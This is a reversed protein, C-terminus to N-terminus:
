SWPVAKWCENNGLLSKLSKRTSKPVSLGQEHACRTLFAATEKALWTTIDMAETELERFVSLGLDDKVPDIVEGVTVVSQFRRFKAADSATVLGSNHSLTHRIQFIVQLARVRIKMSSNPQKPIYRRKGILMYAANDIEDLDHFLRQEFVLEPICKSDTISWLLRPDVSINKMEGPQVFGQLIKGLKVFTRKFFTEFANIAELLVLQEAYWRYKVFTAAKAGTPGKGGRKEELADITKKQGVITDYRKDLWVLFRDQHNLLARFEELPNGTISALHRIHESSSTAIVQRREFAVRNKAGKTRM